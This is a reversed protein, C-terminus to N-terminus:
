AEFRDIRRILVENLDAMTLAQTKLDVREAHPLAEFTSTQIFARLRTLNGMLQVQEEYVRQQHPLAYKPAPVVKYSKEFVDKPSWSIYGMHNGHNPKGGELYEVLYGEDAPNENPPITWGQYENYVGRTMPQADVTKTGIYRLVNAPINM